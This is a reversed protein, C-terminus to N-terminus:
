KCTLDYSKSTRLLSPLRLAAAAVASCPKDTSFFGFVKQRAEYLIGISFLALLAIKQRGPLKLGMLEPLPLIYIIIDLVLDIGAFTVFYPVEDVCWQPGTYFINWYANLPICLLFNTVTMSVTWGITIGLLIYIAMRMSSYRPFLRWYLLLVSIKTFGVNLLGLLSNAVVL